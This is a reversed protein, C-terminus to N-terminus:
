FQIAQLLVLKYAGKCALRSAQQLLDLPLLHQLELDTLYYYYYPLLHQVELDTLDYHLKRTM